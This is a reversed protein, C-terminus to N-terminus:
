KRENGNEKKMQETEKLGNIKLIECLSTILSTNICLSVFRELDWLEVGTFSSAFLAVTNTRKNM